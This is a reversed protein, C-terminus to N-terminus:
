NPDSLENPWSGGLARHLNIRDQLLDYQAAVRERELTQLARLQILVTTYEEAGNRYRNASEEYSIRAADIRRDLAAMYERQKRESVLADEVERFANIATERYAALREDAVAHARAVEAKRRGGEFIPGTISATLNAFWDDFLDPLESNEYKASATLRLAPLRDARAAGVRWEAAQLRLGAQRVDPRNALVDAPIGIGPPEGIEPLRTQIVKLMGPDTLGLLAALQNLLLAERREILPLLSESAAVAQRQQFVALASALGNRFRLEILELTTRNSKLQRGAVELQLRQALLESWRLAVEASLTIAATNLSERSTERDLAAAEKESRIRGWLDLEYSANLGLSYTETTTEVISNRSAQAKGEYGLSPYHAAGAKIAVAEAQALRAWAQRITPSNTLATEILGNLEPSQFNEWWRNTMEAAESYLSFREPMGTHPEPLSRPKFVTCSILLLAPLPVLWQSYRNM